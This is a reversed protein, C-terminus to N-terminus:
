IPKFVMAWTALMLVLLNIMFLLRQRRLLPRIEDPNAEEAVAVTLRKLTPRLAAVGILIFVVVAAIGWVIWAQMSLHNIFMGAVGALLALGSAPGVLRKGLGQAYRLFGAVEMADARRSVLGNLVVMAAFGGIWVAISIVHVFKLWTYMHQM